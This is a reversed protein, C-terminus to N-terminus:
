FQRENKPAQVSKRLDITGQIRAMEELNEIENVSTNSLHVSGSINRENRRNLYGSRELLM